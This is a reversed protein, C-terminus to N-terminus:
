SSKRCQKQSLYAQIAAHRDDRDSLQGHELFYQPLGGMRDLISQSSNKPIIETRSFIRKVISQLLTIILQLQQLPTLKQAELILDEFSM